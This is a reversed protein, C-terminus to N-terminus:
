HSHTAKLVAAILSDISVPKLLFERVNPTTEPTFRASHARTGSTVLVPVAPFHEALKTVLEFGDMQPMTVDTIVLHFTQDLMATLAEVGNKVGVVAYGGLEIIKVMHERLAQDDEVVLVRKHRIATTRKTATKTQKAKM